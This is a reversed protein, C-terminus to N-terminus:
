VAGRLLSLEEAQAAERKRSDQLERLLADSQAQGAQERNKVEEIQALTTKVQSRLVAGEAQRAEREAQLARAAGQREAEMAATAADLEARDVRRAGDLELGRVDGASKIGVAAAHLQRERERLELEARMERERAGMEYNRAEKQWSLEATRAQHALHAEATRQAALSARLELTNKEALHAEFLGIQERIIRGM